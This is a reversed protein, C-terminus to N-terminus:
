VHTSSLVLDVPGEFQLWNYSYPLKYIWKNESIDRETEMTLSCGIDKSNMDIIIPIGM